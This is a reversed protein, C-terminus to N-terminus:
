KNSEGEVEDLSEGEAMPQTDAVEKEEPKPAVEGPTEFLGPFFQRLYNQYAIMDMGKSTIRPTRDTAGSITKEFTDELKYKPLEIEDNIWEGLNRVLSILVTTDVEITKVEQPTANEQNVEEKKVEMNTIDLKEANMKVKKAM